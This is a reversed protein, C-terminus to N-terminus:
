WCCVQKGSSIAYNQFKNELIKKKKLKYSTLANAMTLSADLSRLQIKDNQFSVYLANLDM